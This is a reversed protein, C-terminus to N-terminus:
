RCGFSLAGDSKIWIGIRCDSFTSGSIVGRHRITLASGDTAYLEPIPSQSCRVFRGQPTYLEAETKLAAPGRRHIEFLVTQDLKCRTITQPHELIL